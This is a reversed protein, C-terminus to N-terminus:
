SNLYKLQQSIELYISIASIYKLINFSVLNYIYGM